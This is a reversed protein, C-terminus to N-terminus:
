RPFSGGPNVLGTAPYITKYVLPDVSKRRLVAPQWFFSNKGQLIFCISTILVTDPTATALGVVCRLTGAGPRAIIIVIYSILITSYCRPGSCRTSDLTLSLPFIYGTQACSISPRAPAAYDVSGVSLQVSRKAANKKVNQLTGM